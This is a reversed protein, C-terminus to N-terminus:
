DKDLPLNLSSGPVIYWSALEAYGPKRQMLKGSLGQFGLQLCQNIVSKNSIIVTTISKGLENNRSWARHAHFPNNSMSKSEEEVCFPNVSYQRDSVKNTSCTVSIWLSYLFYLWLNCFEQQLYLDINRWIIALKTVEDGCACLATFFFFIM